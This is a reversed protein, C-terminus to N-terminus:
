KIQWIVTEFWVVGQILNNNKKELKLKEIYWNVSTKEYKYKLTLYLNLESEFSLHGFMLM